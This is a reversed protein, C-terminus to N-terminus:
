AGPIKGPPLIHHIQTVKVFDKGEKQKKNEEARAGRHCGRRGRRHLGGGRGRGGLRRAARDGGLRRGDGARVREEGGDARVLPAFPGGVRGDGDHDVVVELTEFTVVVHQAHQRLGMEFVHPQDITLEGLRVQVVLSIEGRGGGLGGARLVSEPVHVVDQEGFLGLPDEQCGVLEFGPGDVLGLPEPHVAGPELGVEIVRRGEGLDLFRFRLGFGRADGDQREDQDVPFDVVTGGVVAGEVLHRAQDCEARTFEAGAGFHCNIGALM